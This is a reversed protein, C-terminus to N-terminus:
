PRCVGDVCSFTSCDADEDCDACSGSASVRPVVVGFTETPAALAPADLNSFCVDGAASLAEVGVLYDGWELPDTTLVVGPCPRASGDLTTGDDLALPPDLPRGHADLMTIRVTDIVLQGETPIPTCLRSQAGEFPEYAVVFRARAVIPEFFTDAPFDAQLVFFGGLEEPVELAIERDEAVPEGDSGLARVTLTIPLRGDVPPGDADSADFVTSFRLNTDCATSQVLVEDGLRVELQSIGLEGCGVAPNGGFFSVRIDFESAAVSRGELTDLSFLEGCAPDNGDVLGDLDNDIGDSCQPPPGLEFVGLDITSDERVDVHKCDCVLAEPRCAPSGTLATCTEFEPDTAYDKGQLQAAIQEQLLTADDNWVAFARNTGVVQVAYPGEPLTPGSVRGDADEFSGPFCPFRRVDVLQGFADFTLSAVTLVGVQSCQYSEGLTEGALDWRMRFSPDETCAALGLLGIGCVAPLLRSLPELM